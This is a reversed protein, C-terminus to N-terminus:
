YDAGQYSEYGGGHHGNGNGNGGYSRVQQTPVAAAADYQVVVNPPTLWKNLAQILPETVRVRWQEPLPVDVIASGNNYHILVGCGDSQGAALYPSLERRLRDGLPMIIVFDVMHTFQIAVFVLLIGWEARTLRSHTRNAPFEGSPM